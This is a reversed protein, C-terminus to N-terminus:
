VNASCLRLKLRTSVITTIKFIDLLQFITNYIKIFSTLSVTATQSAFMALIGGRRLAIAPLLPTLEHSIQQV